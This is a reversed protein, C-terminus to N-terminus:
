YSSTELYDWAYMNIKLEGNIHSNRIHVDEPIYIVYKKDLHHAHSNKFPMNLPIFGLSRRRKHHVKHDTIRGKNTQLHKMNSIRHKEKGTPTQRNLKVSLKIEEKHKAYNEKRWKILYKERYLKYDEKTLGTKRYVM